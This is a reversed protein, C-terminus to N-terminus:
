VWIPKDRKTYQLIHAKECLYYARYAEVPDDSRYEPLMCQAFPTLGIDPLDLTPLTSIVDWSKHNKTHNYRYKYELNLNKALETL